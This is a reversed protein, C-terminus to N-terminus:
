AQLSKHLSLPFEFATSQKRGAGRANWFRYEDELSSGGFNKEVGPCTPTTQQPPPSCIREMLLCFSFTCQVSIHRVHPRQMPPRMEAWPVNESELLHVSVSELSVRNLSPHSTCCGRLLLQAPGSNCASASPQSVRPTGPRIIEGVVVTARASKGIHNNALERSGNQM